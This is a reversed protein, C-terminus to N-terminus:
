TCVRRIRLWLKIVMFGVAIQKHKISSECWYRTEITDEMCFSKFTDIKVHTTLARAYMYM